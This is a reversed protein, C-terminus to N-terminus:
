GNSIIICYVDFSLIWCTVKKVSQFEKL